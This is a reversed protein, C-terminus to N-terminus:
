PTPDKLATQVATVADIVTLCREATEDPIELGFEEEIAMVLEIADVSDLGLDTLLGMTPKIDDEMKGSYLSILQVVKRETDRDTWEINV